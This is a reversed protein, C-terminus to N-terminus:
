NVLLIKTVLADPKDFTDETTAFVLYVGSEARRGDLDKGYWIAQGGQARTEYVVRGAVNTIKVAANEALGKIAIPGEYNPAVPNPYAYANPDNVSSGEVATGRTSIIGSETGIFVEGDEPNITIDIISNNLLPSNDVNYTAIETEGNPSQVFVGNKTGIWKQNAGDVAITTVEEEGLLFSLVGDQEVVIRYGQNDGVFPDVGGDFVVPGMSTGVWIDGNRDMTLNTLTSTPLNSNNTTFVRQRDDSPNDITGGDDYVLIGESPSVVAIWKYGRQDIILEGIRTSSNVPFNLWEGDAKWVVLPNPASHCTMWLNGDRDFEMGAVRERLPDGVAGQLASNDQDFFEYTSDRYNYIVLGAYYSGIYVLPTDPDPHHRIRFYDLISKEGLIDVNTRNFWSWNGKELFSFGDARFFNSYNDNVGGAVVFLKNDSVTMESVNASYPTNFEFFDCGWEWFQSVRIGDFEDAYWVRGDEDEIAYTPRGACQFGHEGIKGESNYFHVKGNCIDNFCRFGVKLHEGESSIFNIIHDQREDWLIFEDQEFAFVANDAAAMLMEKYTTIGQAEYVEPLGVETSQRKWANFNSVLETDFDDFKYLGQGTSIWFEDQYKTFGTVATGTFMTFGFKLTRLNFEVLGFDCSLYIIDSNDVYVNNIGKSGVITNNSLIDDVNYIGDSFVLDINSNAYVVILVNNTRQFKVLKIDVDNLGEVKSFFEVISTDKQIAIIGDSSGYYVKDDDQTVSTGSTYPLHARWEGIRIENQSFCTGALMILVGVLILHQNKLQMGSSLCHLRLSIAM